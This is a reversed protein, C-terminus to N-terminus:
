LMYVHLIYFIYPGHMTCTLAMCSKYRYQANIMCRGHVTCPVHMIEHMYWAHDSNVSEHM